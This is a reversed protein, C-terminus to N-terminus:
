FRRAIKKAIVFKCIGDAPGIIRDELRCPRKQGNLSRFASFMGSHYREEVPTEYLRALDALPRDPILRQSNPLMASFTKRAVVLGNSKTLAFSSAGVSPSVVRLDIM